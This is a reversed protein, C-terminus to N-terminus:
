LHHRETMSTVAVNEDNNVSITHDSISLRPTSSNYTKIEANLRSAWDNCAAMEFSAIQLIGKLWDIRQSMQIRKGRSMPNPQAANQQRLVFANHEIIVHSNIDRRANLELPNALTVYRRWHIACTSTSVPEARTRKKLRNGKRGGEFFIFCRVVLHVFSVVLSNNNIKVTTPRQTQTQCCYGFRTYHGRTSTVSHMSAVTQATDDPRPRFLYKDLHNESFIIFFCAGFRSFWRTSPHITSPICDVHNIRTNNPLCAFAQIITRELLLLMM